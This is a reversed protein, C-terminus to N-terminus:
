TNTNKNKEDFDSELKKILLEYEDKKLVNTDYLKKLRAKEKKLKLKQKEEETLNEKKVKRLLAKEKKLEEYSFNFLKIIEDKFEKYQLIDRVEPYRLEDPFSYNSFAQEKKIKIKSIDIKNVFPFYNTKYETNLTNLVCSEFLEEFGNILSKYLKLEKFISIINQVSLNLNHNVAFQLQINSFRNLSTQESDKLLLDFRNNYFSSFILANESYKQFSRNKHYKRLKVIERFAKEFDGFLLQRELGYYYTFVYGMDIPNTVDQLWSLYTFRQEPNMSAYSPWYSLPEVEVQSQPKSIPLTTFITSPDLKEEEKIRPVGDVFIISIVFGIGIYPIRNAPLDSIYLLELNPIQKKIAIAQNKETSVDSRKNISFKFIGM